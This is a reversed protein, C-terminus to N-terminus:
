AARAQECLRAHAAKDADTAPSLLSLGVTWKKLHHKQGTSRMEYVEARKTADPVLVIANKRVGKVRGTVRAGGRDYFSVYANVSIGAAAAKAKPPPPLGIVLQTVDLGFLAEATTAHSTSALWAALSSVAAVLLLTLTDRRCGCPVGYVAADGRAYAENQKWLMEASVQLKMLGQAVFPEVKYACRTMRNSAAVRLADLGGRGFGSFRSRLAAALSGELFEADVAHVILKMDDARVTGGLDARIRPAVRAAVRALSLDREVASLAGGRARDALSRSPSDEPTETAPRKSDKTSDETAPRKKGSEKKAAEAQWQNVLKKVVPDNPDPRTPPPRTSEQSELPSAPRTTGSEKKFASELLAKVAPDKHDVVTPGRPAGVGARQDTSLASLFANQM